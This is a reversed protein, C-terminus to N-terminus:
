GTYNPVYNYKPVHGKTCLDDEAINKIYPSMMKDTRIQLMSDGKLQFILIFRNKFQAAM